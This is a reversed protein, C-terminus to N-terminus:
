QKMHDLTPVDKLNKVINVTKKTQVNFTGVMICTKVGKGSNIDGEM